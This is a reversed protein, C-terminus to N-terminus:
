VKLFMFVANVTESRASLDPVPLPLTYVIVYLAVSMAPLIVFAEVATVTGCSM